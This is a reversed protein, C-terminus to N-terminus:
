CDSIRIGIITQAVKSLKGGSQSSLTAQGEYKEVAFKASSPGYASGAKGTCSVQWKADAGAVKYDKVTCKMGFEGQMPLSRSPSAIDMASYCIRSTMVRKADKGPVQNTVIIEWLGPKMPATQAAVPAAQLSFLLPAVIFVSSIVKVKLM